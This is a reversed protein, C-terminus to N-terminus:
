PGSVLPCAPGPAPPGCRSLVLDAAAAEEATITLQYTQRLELRTRVYWCQNHTPLWDDVGRGLRGLDLVPSLAHVRNQPDAAFARRLTPTRRCLGARHATRPDLVFGRSVGPADPAAVAVCSLPALYEGGPSPDRLRPGPGDEPMPYDGPQFLSCDRPQDVRLGRWVGPLAMPDSGAPPVRPRGPLEEDGRVVGARYYASRWDPGDFAAPEPEGTEVGYAARWDGGAAAPAEGDPEPADDGPAAGAGPAPVSAIDPNVSCGALVAAAFVAFVAPRPLVSFRVFAFTPAPPGAAVRM